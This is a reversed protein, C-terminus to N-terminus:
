IVYEFDEVITGDEEFILKKTKEIYINDIISDQFEYNINIVNILFQVLDYLIM